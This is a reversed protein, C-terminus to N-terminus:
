HCVYSLSTKCLYSTGRLFFKARSPSTYHRMVVNSEEVGKIVYDSEPLLEVMTFASAYGAQELFQHPVLEVNRLYKELRELDYSQKKFLVVGSNGKARGDDLESGDKFPVKCLTPGNSMMLASNYSRVIHDNLIQPNKFWLLDSDLMLITEKKSALYPDILKRAQWLRTTFFEQIRPYNLFVKKAEQVLDDAGVIRVLPFLRRVIDKDKNTLSGYNHVTLSGIMTSNQYFSALSWCASLVDRHGFLMHMSLNQHTVPKELIGKFRTIRPAVVYRMWLYFFGKRYRTFSLYIYYLHSKLNKM